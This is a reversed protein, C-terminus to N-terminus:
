NKTTSNAPNSYNNFLYRNKNVNFNHCTVEFFQQLYAKIYKNFSDGHWSLKNSMYDTFLNIEERFLICREQGILALLLTKASDSLRMYESSMTSTASFCRLTGPFSNIWRWRHGHWNAKAIRVPKTATLTHATCLLSQCRESQYNRVTTYKQLNWQSFASSILRKQRMNYQWLMTVIKAFIYFAYKKFYFKCVRVKVTRNSNNM